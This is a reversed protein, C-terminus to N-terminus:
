MTALMARMAANPDYRPGPRYNGGQWNNLGGGIDYIFVGVGNGATTLSTDTQPSNSFATGNYTASISSGSVTIRDVDGAAPNVVTATAIQTFMGAVYKLFLNGSPTGTYRVCFYASFGNSGVRVAPGWDDNTVRSNTRFESWQDAHNAAGSYYYFKDGAASSRIVNSALNINNTSGTLRAWNGALPTENARVFTDSPDYDPCCKPRSQTWAWLKGAIWIERLGTWNEALVPNWRVVNGWKCWRWFLLKALLDRLLRRGQTCVGLRSRTDIVAARTMAELPDCGIRVTGRELTLRDESWVYCWGPRTCDDRLDLMGWGRTGDVGRPRFPDARKGTGVIPALYLM